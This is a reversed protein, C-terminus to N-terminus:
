QRTTTRVAYAHESTRPATVWAGRFAGPTFGYTRVLERSLHAQDYFGAELAADVIPLGSKLMSKAHHLAVLVHFDHLGTGVEHRFRRSLYGKSIACAEAIQAVDTRLSGRRSLLAKVREVLAGDPGRNLGDLKYDDPVVFESVFSWGHSDLPEFRHIVGAPVIVKEGAEVRRGVSGIRLFACGELMHVVEDGLHYHPRFSWVSRTGAIIERYRGKTFDVSLSTRPAPRAASVASSTLTEM